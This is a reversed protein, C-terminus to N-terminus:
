SLAATEAARLSRAAEEIYTRTLPADQRRTIRLQFIAANEHRFAAEAIAIYSDWMRCSREDFMAGAEARCGIFNSRWAILTEAYHLRPM